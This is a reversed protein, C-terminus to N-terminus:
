ARQANTVRKSAITLAGLATTTTFLRNQDPQISGGGRGYPTWEDYEDPAEVDPPPIRLLASSRWSGDHKQHRALWRASHDVATDLETDGARLCLLQLCCATGFPSGDGGFDSSVVCGTDNCRRHAWQVATEVRDQDAATGTRALAQAALATPFEPNGWWYSRWSGDSRQNERLYGLARAETEGALGTIAAATVSVHPQCWGRFSVDRSLGTFHRIPGDTSYTSLGGDSAVHRGLFARARRATLSRSEGLVDALRLVWATTDADSPVRRNYGWGASWLRRRTLRTWARRAAVRAARDGTSGLGAAVYATVWEDSEGALTDYDAWWGAPSQQSLLFQQASEVVPTLDM